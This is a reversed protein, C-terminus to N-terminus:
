VDKLWDCKLQDATGDNTSSTYLKQIKNYPQVVTCHFLPFFSLPRPKFSGFYINAGTGRDIKENLSEIQKYAEKMTLWSVQLVDM